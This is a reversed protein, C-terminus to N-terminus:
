GKIKSIDNLIDQVEASTLSHRNAALHGFKTTLQLYLAHGKNGSRGLIRFWIWDSVCRTQYAFAFENNANPLDGRLVADRGKALANHSLVKMQKYENDADEVIMEATMNTDIMNYNLARLKTKVENLNLTAM